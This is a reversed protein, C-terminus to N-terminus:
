VGLGRCFRNVIHKEYCCGLNLWNKCNLGMLFKATSREDVEDTGLAINVIASFEM